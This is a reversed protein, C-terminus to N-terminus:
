PALIAENWTAINRTSAGGTPSTAQMAFTIEMYSIQITELPQGANNAGAVQYSTIETPPANPVTALTITLTYGTVPDKQTLVVQSLPKGTTIAQVIQQSCANFPKTVQLASLKPPTKTTVGTAGFNGSYAAGISWATVDVTCGLDRMTLSTNGPSTSSLTSEQTTFSEFLFSVTETPLAASAADNIQTQAILVNTLTLLPATAGSATFTVTSFGQAAVVAEYIAPSCMDATKTVSVTVTTKSTQGNQTQNEQMSWSVAPFSCLGAINVTLMSGNGSNAQASACLASAFILATALIPRLPTRM